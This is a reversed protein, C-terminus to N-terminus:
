GFYLLCEVRLFCFVLRRRRGEWKWKIEIKEQSNTQETQKAWRKRAREGNRWKWEARKSSKFSRWSCLSNKWMLTENSEAKRNKMKGDARDRREVESVGEENENTREANPRLSFKEEREERGVVVVVNGTLHSIFVCHPHPYFFSHSACCRRLTHSFYKLEGGVRWGWESGVSHQITSLSRSSFFSFSQTSSSFSFRVFSCLFHQFLFQFLNEREVPSPSSGKWGRSFSWSTAQQQESSEVKIGFRGWVWHTQSALLM